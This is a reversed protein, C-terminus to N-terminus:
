LTWGCQPLTLETAVEKGEVEVVSLLEAVKDDEVVKFSGSRGVANPSDDPSPPPYKEPTPFKGDHWDLWAGLGGESDVSSGSTTLLSVQKFHTFVHIHVHVHVHLVHIYM